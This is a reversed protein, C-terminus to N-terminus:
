GAIIEVPLFMSAGFPFASFEGASEFIGVVRADDNNPVHPQGAEVSMAQTRNVDVPWHATM